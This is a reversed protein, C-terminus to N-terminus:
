IFVCICFGFIIEDLMIVKVLLQVYIVITVGVEEWILAVAVIRRQYNWVLVDKVNDMGQCVPTATEKDLM